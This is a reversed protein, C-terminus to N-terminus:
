NCACGCNLSVMNCCLFMRSLKSVDTSWKAFHFALWIKLDQLLSTHPANDMIHKSLLVYLGLSGFKRSASAKM